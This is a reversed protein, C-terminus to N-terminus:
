PLIAGRLPQIEPNGFVPPPLPALLHIRNLVLQDPTVKGLGDQCSLKDQCLSTLYRAVVETGDLDHGNGDMVVTINNGNICGPIAIRNILCSDSRYYYSAYTYNQILDLPVPVETGQPTVMINSARSTPGGYPNMDMTLGAFNFLWGGTWLSVNPNLAGDAASEIQSKVASGPITGKAILPGIPIFNYLDALTIPGPGGDPGVPAVHTGYRFGRIAGIDAMGIARFADTLLDHSSGEIVGPM